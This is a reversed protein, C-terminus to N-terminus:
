IFGTTRELELGKTLHRFLGRNRILYNRNQTNAQFSAEYIIM